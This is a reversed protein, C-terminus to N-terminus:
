GFGEEKAEKVMKSIVDETGDITKVAFLSSKQYKKLKKYKKLLEQVHDPNMDLGEFNINFGKSM